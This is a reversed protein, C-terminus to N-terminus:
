SRREMTPMDAERELRQLGDDCPRCDQDSSQATQRGKHAGKIQEKQQSAGQRQFQQREDHVRYEPDKLLAADRAKGAKEIQEKTIRVIPV